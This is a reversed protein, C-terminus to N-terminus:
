NTVASYGDNTITAVVSRRRNLFQDLKEVKAAEAGEDVIDDRFDKVVKAAVTLTRSDVSLKVVEGDKDVATIGNDIQNLLEDLLADKLRKVKNDTM